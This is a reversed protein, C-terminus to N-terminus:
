PLIKLTNKTVLIPSTYVDTQNGLFWRKRDPVFGITSVGQIQQSPCNSDKPLM